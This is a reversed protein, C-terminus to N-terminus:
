AAERARSTVERALQMKTLGCFFKYKKSATLEDFTADIQVEIAIPENVVEVKLGTEEAMCTLWVPLKEGLKLIFLRDALTTQAWMMKCVDHVVPATPLEKGNDFSKLFSTIDKIDEFAFAQIPHTKEHNM